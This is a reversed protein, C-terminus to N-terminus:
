PRSCAATAPGPKAEVFSRFGSLYEYQAREDDKADAFRRTSRELATGPTLPREGQDIMRREANVQANYAASEVAFSSLGQLQDTETRPDVPALDSLDKISNTALATLVHNFEHASAAVLDTFNTIDLASAATNFIINGSVGTLSRTTSDFTLNIDTNGFQNKDLEGFGVKVVGDANEIAQYAKWEKEGKAKVATEFAKKLEDSAFEWKAGDPDILILPSNWVYSYRNWTQALTPDASELLPDPSSFRGLHNAYMRAQAYGLDTEHDREYGTFQKRVSDASYNLGTTRQATFIEEGFPHYDHRAIVTGYQDTNIRPSGLHDTTLYAVKADQSSAIITSYEAVLKGGVDYSFITLEGTSPVIKKIRRGDGDYFYEGVTAIPNGSGDVTEVKVQKNEADYTFRRNEADRVTNGSADFTYGNLRNNTIDVSPNVIPRVAECVETNGNCEKPLTTTNAEDFNRNGYRDFTFAQKWTQSGNNTETASQLRNLSDYSYSQVFPNALGPVTITQSKVNGNNDTTGYEYNLKLVNQTSAASGLGIQIPQLRSNFETNEFKGNGLRMSSVAGAATYVFSGAYTQFFDAASRKSEVKSLDGNADLVNKVKRGSPYTEEILAGSLNYTYGTSYGNVDGGDTTQKAALVRGLIDFATYETTSVSSSVKTLRGKANPLNDYFYSVNPTTYGTEGTYTRTLVRNLADYTYATAVGRADTKQTLNGGADYVYNITGSEPNQASVLRSLSNYAFNRTQVGQNVTTLNNLTDYTYYTPQTPSSADGLQGGADPEDVRILQGM